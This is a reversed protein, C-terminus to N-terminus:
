VRRLVLNGQDRAVEMDPRDAMFGDTATRCGDYDHYDDLVIFGGPSLHPYTRELCLKVPDHWDSDIHVLALPGTPHLTHEFLGRHLEVRDGPAIRHARFGSVVREYLDDVYGYYDDGDIGRSKGSAILEYREHSDASDRESPPPIMGFVDYGHFARAPTLHTALVIASGGLAVGAEVVDGAVERREVEDACWELNALKEWSLYTLRERKVRRAVPSLRRWKRARAVKHRIDGLLSM